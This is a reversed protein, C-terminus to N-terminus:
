FEVNFIRLDESDEASWQHLYSNPKAIVIQHSQVYEGLDTRKDGELERLFSKM